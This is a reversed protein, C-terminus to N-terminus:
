DYKIVPRIENFSPNGVPEGSAPGIQPQRKTIPYDKRLPHGVFSEYLLLRKIDPRDVFGVGFMDYVEREFWDAIPWLARATHLVPKGEPVGCRVEVRGKDEGTAADLKALRWLCEYRETVPAAPRPEELTDTKPNHPTGYEEGSASAIGHTLDSQEAPAARKFRDSLDGKTGSGARYASYDVATFDVLFNYGEAKLAKLTEFATEASVRKVEFKM